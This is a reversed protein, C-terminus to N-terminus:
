FCLNARQECGPAIVIHLQMRQQLSRKEQEFDRGQRLVKRGETSCAQLRQIIKIFGFGDRLRPSRLLERYDLPRSCWSCVEQEHHNCRHLLQDFGTCTLCLFSDGGCNVELGWSPSFLAPGKNTRSRLSILRSRGGFGHFPRIVARRNWHVVVGELTGPQLFSSAVNM